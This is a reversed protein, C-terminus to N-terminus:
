MLFMKIFMATDDAFSIIKGSRQSTAIGDIYITEQPVFYEIIRKESQTENIEVIPKSNDIYSRFLKLINGTPELGELNELLLTHDVTYFATALDLVVVM